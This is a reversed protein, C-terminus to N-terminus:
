GLRARVAIPESAQLAWSPEDRYRMSVLRPARPSLLSMGKTVRAEPEKGRARVNAIAASANM